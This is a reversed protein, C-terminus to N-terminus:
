ALMKGAVIKEYATQLRARVSARKAKPTDSLQEERLESM